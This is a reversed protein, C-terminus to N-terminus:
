YIETDTLSQTIRLAQVRVTDSGAIGLDEGIEELFFKEGVENMAM